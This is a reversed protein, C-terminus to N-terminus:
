SVLYWFLLQYLKELLIPKTLCLDCDRRHTLMSWQISLLVLCPFIKPWQGISLVCPQVGFKGLIVNLRNMSVHIRNKCCVGDGASDNVWWCVTHQRLFAVRSWLMGQMMSDHVSDILDCLSLSWSFLSPCSFHKFLFLHWIKACSVIDVNRM